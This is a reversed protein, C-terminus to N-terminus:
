RLGRDPERDHGTKHQADRLRKGHAGPPVGFVRRYERSFQSPNNYGVAFGVACVDEDFSMLRTRAIQLRIQQQYQVPTMSTVARFHRHFSTVSMGVGRALVDVPLKEAYAERIRRTAAAIRTTMSSSIGIERVLAGQADNLLRWVLERELAAGLIPIDAPTDLLALLRIVAELVVCTPAGVGIGGMGVAGTAVLPAELLLSSIAEPKLRLRFGLFPVAESAEVIRADIPLDVPLIMCQGARCDFSHAGLATRARGQVVLAFTPECVHAFSETPLSSSMLSVNPLGGIAASNAHRTILQQLRSLLSVPM